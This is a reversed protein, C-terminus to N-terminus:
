SSRLKHIDKSDQNIALNVIISAIYADRKHCENM